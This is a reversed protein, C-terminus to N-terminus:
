ELFKRTLAHWQEDTLREYLDSALEGGDSITIGVHEVLEEHLRDFERELWEKTSAGKMMKAVVEGPLELKVLWGRNHPDTSVFSPDNELAENKEAVTARVPLKMRVLRKGSGLSFSVGDRGISGKSPLSVRDIKGIIRSAFDDIGIKVQDGEIKLWVHNPAYYYDDHFTFGKAQKQKAAARERKKQLLPNAEITDQIYQDVPCHWCEYNNSCLKFSLDGTLMYRCKREHGPLQRLKKMAEIVMPSEVYAGSSDVIAQDFECARCDYDTTCMRYAIVGAKMWICPKQGEAAAVKQKEEQKMKAEKIRKQEFYEKFTPCEEHSVDCPSPGVVNRPVMKKVPCVACYQVLIEELFPCKM